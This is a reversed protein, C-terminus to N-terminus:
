KEFRSGGNKRTRAAQEEEFNKYTKEKKTDEKDMCGAKKIKFTGQITKDNDSQNWESGQRTSMLEVELMITQKEGVKMESLEPLDKDTLRFTPYIRPNKAMPMDLGM